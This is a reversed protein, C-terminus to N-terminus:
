SLQCRVHPVLSPGLGPIRKEAAQKGVHDQLLTLVQCRVCFSFQGRKSSRKSERAWGRPQPPVGRASASIGSERTNASLAPTRVNLFCEGRDDCRRYSKSFRVRAFLQRRFVRVWYTIACRAALHLFSLETERSVPQVCLCADM